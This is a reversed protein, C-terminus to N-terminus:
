RVVVTGQMSPHLHCAYPYTGATWFTRMISVNANDGAIDAPADAQPTFFVNHAVSGFAFTVVDGATVNVTNPTFTLSATAAITNDAVTATTGTGGAATTGYPNGSCAMAVLAGTLTTLTLRNKRTLM